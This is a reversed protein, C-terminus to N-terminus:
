CVKRVSFAETEETDGSITFSDITLNGTIFDAIMIYNVLDVRLRYVRNKSTPEM